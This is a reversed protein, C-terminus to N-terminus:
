AVVTTGFQAANVSSQTWASSTNPDTEFMQSAYTDSTPLGVTAGDANTSGSRAFTAATRTGADDKSWYANVQVGFVTSSTLNPVDAYGYSDRNGATGMSVYDTNSPPIEDVCAYHATGTSPTGDTYTGDSTPMITDIRSDGLFDNNASGSSDCVYFDDYLPFASTLPSTCGLRVINAYANSGAQTSQGTAVTVIDVGNLRVKCSGAAISTSITVKFELYNWAGITLTATSTGNTIATGTGRVVSFTLNNNLLLSLQVTTTDLLRILAVSGSDPAASIKIAAGIIFTATNATTKDVYATNAAGNCELAGGGRRGGTTSIRISLSSGIANWKKPLETSSYHDFGDIFLLAM